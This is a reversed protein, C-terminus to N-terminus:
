DVYIFENTAILSQILVGIPTRKTSSSESLNRLKDLYELAENEEAATPLRFFIQRYLQKLLDIQGTQNSSLLQAALNESANNVIPANLMFLAQHPVITTTRQALHTGSDSYDFTNFMEYGRGRIVPLYLARRNSEFEMGNGRYYTENKDAKEVRGGIRLDLKNGVFLIADRISEASLRKQNQRWFSRNEPDIKSNTQNSHSTQQYTASTLILRHIHKLSWDHNLLENALWDLLLPHSPPEGRVGFNSPTSVLGIGFYGQWIRNVIVRATLPHDPATLWKGLELRGSHKKPKGIPQMKESVKKPFGRAVATETLNLHSGRIHVPIDRATGDIVAMARPFNPGRKKLEKLKVNLQKLKKTKEESDDESKLGEIVQTRRQIEESHKTRITENSPDPLITETWFSVHNTNAMTKTSAFIGGLAYYDETSIPDFKHDHCRACAITLGMATKALVDIQEDVIDILLKDKDQEALMKPGLTLFGTATIQDVQEQLTSGEPLLDGAIQEILFRDYPKDQNLSRVVYDRYRWAHLFNYNEDVGNTDAYRALDLWIRGWREGFQPSALLRDVHRNYGAQTPTFDSSTIESKTPPLGTIDFTSRRILQTASARSSPQLGNDKLRRLIFQDVPNNAWMSGSVFPPESKSLPDFAWHDEALSNSEPSADKQQFDVPTPARMEIWQEFSRIISNSLKGSPPMEFQIQNLASILLSKSPVDANIAPGSDGGLLLAERSDLRLGGKIKKSEQSHCEYCHQVLAPRIKTEFFDIGTANASGNVLTLLLTSVLAM